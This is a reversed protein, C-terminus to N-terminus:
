AAAEKADYLAQAGGALYTETVDGTRLRVPKASRLSRCVTTTLKSGAEDPDSWVWVRSFGALMRRHRAFWMEVGPVAVSHWGIKRHIMRDFEGETLHIEDGAAHISDVGYMRPPDGAITNYKGHGHERHNHNQLCRFRITLPQGQHGLYPICLMGRYREHGPLPDDVVGLRFTAAEEPGIGRARLYRAADATLAAQYASTAEELM